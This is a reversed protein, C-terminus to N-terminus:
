PKPLVFTAISYGPVTATVSRNGAKVTIPRPASNNFVVVSERGDSQAALHLLDPSSTTTRLRQSTPAIFRAFHSMVFLESNATITDAGTDWQVLGTGNTFTSPGPGGNQDLVQNFLVVGRHSHNLSPFFLQTSMWWIGDSFDGEFPKDPNQTGSQETVWLRTGPHQAAVADGAGDAKGAYGHFGVGWATRGQAELQRLIENPDEPHDWNHDYVFVGTNQQNRKGLADQTWAVLRAQDTVSVKMCPYTAGNYRTENQVSIVTVNLGPVVARYAEVARAPYDAFTKLSTDDSLLDGGILKGNTKLWAPASWPSMLVTIAPNIAIIERLVPLITAEDRQISFKALPDSDSGKTDAFTYYDNNTTFDSTGIPIRLASLHHTGSPSFVDRLIAARKGADMKLLLTAASHTLAGGFGEVKANSLPGGVEIVTSSASSALPLSEFLQSHDTNTAIVAGADGITPTVM